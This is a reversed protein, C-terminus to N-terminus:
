WCSSYVERMPDAEDSPGKVYPKKDDEAARPAVQWSPGQLWHLFGLFSSSVELLSSPTLCLIVKCLFIPSLFTRRQSPSGRLRAKKLLRWVVRRWFRHLVNVNSKINLPCSASLAHDEVCMKGEASMLGSPRSKPNNTLQCKVNKRAMREKKEDLLIKSMEEALFARSFYLVIYHIFLKLALTKRSWLSVWTNM